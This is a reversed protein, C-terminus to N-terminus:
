QIPEDHLVEANAYATQLAALFNSINKYNEPKVGDHGFAVVLYDGVSVVILREPMGCFFQTSLIADSIAKAAAAKDAGEALKLAGATFTNANMHLMTAAETFSAEQDDPVYLMWLANGEAGPVTVVGPGEFNMTEDAGGMVPFKDAEAVQAWANELLEVAENTAVTIAEDTAETTAETTVETTAETNAETTTETTAANNDTTKCAAMSLVMTLVLVLAFIKKM